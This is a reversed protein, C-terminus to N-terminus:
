KAKSHKNNGNYTWTVPLHGASGWRVLIHNAPLSKFLIKLRTLLLKKRFNTMFTYKQAM